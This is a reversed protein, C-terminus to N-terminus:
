DRERGGLGQCGSVQDTIRDRYDQKKWLTM